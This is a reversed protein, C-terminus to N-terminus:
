YVLFHSWAEELRRSSQASAISCIVFPHWWLCRSFALLGSSWWCFTPMMDQSWCLWRTHSSCALQDISFKRKWSWAVMESCSQAASAVSYHLIAGHLGGFLCWDFTYRGTRTSQCDTIWRYYRRRRHHCVRASRSSCSDRVGGILSLSRWCCLRPCGLLSGSLFSLSDSTRLLPHIFFWVSPLNDWPFSALSQLAEACLEPQITRASSALVSDCVQRLHILDSRVQADRSRPTSHCARRHWPGHYHSWTQLSAAWEPSDQLLRDTQLWVVTKSIRFGFLNLTLSPTM